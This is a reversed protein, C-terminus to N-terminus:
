EDRGEPTYKFLPAEDKKQKQLFTLFGAAILCGGFPTWVSVPELHMINLNVTVFVSPDKYKIASKRIDNGLFFNFSAARAHARRRERM